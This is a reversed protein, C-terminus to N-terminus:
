FPFLIFIQIMVLLITIDEKIKQIINMLSLFCLCQTLGFSPVINGRGYGHVRGGRYGVCAGLTGNHGGDRVLLGGGDVGCRNSCDRKQVRRLLLSFLSGTEDM